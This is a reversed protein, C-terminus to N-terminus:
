PSLLFLLMSLDRGARLSFPEGTVSKMNQLTENTIKAHLGAHQKFVAAIKPEVVQHDSVVKATVGAVYAKTEANTRCPKFGAPLVDASSYQRHSKAATQASQYMMEAANTNQWADNFSIASTTVADKTKTPKDLLACARMLRSMTPAAATAAQGQPAPEASDATQVAEAKYVTHRRQQQRPKRPMVGNVCAKDVMDAANLKTPSSMSSLAATVNQEETVHALQILTNAANTAAIADATEQNAQSM